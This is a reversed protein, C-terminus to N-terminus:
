CRRVMDQAGDEASSFAVDTDEVNATGGQPAGEEDRPAAEKRARRSKKAAPSAGEIAELARKYSKAGNHRATFVTIVALLDETFEDKPSNPSAGEDDDVVIAAGHRQFIWQLLEFAFRCLRDRHSVHVRGLRRAFCLELISRLGKRNFNLGSGVDTVVRCEPHRQQMLAVQNDLNGRQSPTSVRCYVVDERTAVDEETPPNVLLSTAINPNSRKVLARLCVISYKRHNSPTRITDITGNDALKRLTSLSFGTLTTAETGSVFDGVPMHAHQLQSVICGPHPNYLYSIIVFLLYLCNVM